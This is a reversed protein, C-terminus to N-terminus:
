LRVGVERGNNDLSKQAYELIKIVKLAENGGTLPEKNNRICELFHKLEATLPMTEDIDPFIYGRGAIAPEGDEMILNDYYKLKEKKAYDDFAAFLKEGSVVLEMRKFPYLWSGTATVYAGNKYKLNVAVIDQIKDRLFCAGNASVSVPIEDFLYNCITLTHPFFDWLANIDTRVPGNGLHTYHIFNIKGFKGSDIDEKLKQIGPNYRYIHAAMFVKNKRKSMKILDECEKSSATVPKEVIVHKGALLAEKAIKYHTTAPTTIAVADIDKDVLIDKYDATAKVSLDLENKVKDLTDNSRSCIWSVNANDLQNFTRLYNFGFRGIGIVGVNTEMM